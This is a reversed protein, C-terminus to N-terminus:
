LELGGGAPEAGCAQERCPGVCARGPWLCSRLLGQISPWQRGEKSCHVAAHQRIPRRDHDGLCRQGGPLHARQVSKAPITCWGTLWGPVRHDTVRQALPRNARGWARTHTRVRMCVRACASECVCVCVCRQSMHGMAVWTWHWSHIPARWPGGHPRRAAAAEGKHM